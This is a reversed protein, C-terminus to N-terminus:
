RGDVEAEEIALQREQRVSLDNPNLRIVEDYDNVAKSERLTAYPSLAALLTM